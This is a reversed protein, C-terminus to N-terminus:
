SLPEFDSDIDSKDSNADATDLNPNDILSQMFNFAKKFLQQRWDFHFNFFIVCSSTETWDTKNQLEEEKSVNLLWRFCLELLLIENLQRCYPLTYQKMETGVARM